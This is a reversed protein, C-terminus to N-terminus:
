LISFGCSVSIVMLLNIKVATINLTNSDSNLVAKNEVGNFEAIKSKNEKLKNSM